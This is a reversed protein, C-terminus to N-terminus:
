RSNQRHRSSRPTPPSVAAADSLDLRQLRALVAAALRRPMWAQGADVARVARALLAPAADDDLYGCAGHGLVDLVWSTRARPSALVLVRTRRSKQRVLATVAAAERTPVSSGLVVVRPRLAAAVAVVEAGTHADGVVRIGDQGALEHLVAERRPGARDAVLVTISM